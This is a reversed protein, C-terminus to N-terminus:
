AAVKHQKNREQLLRQVESFTILAVRNVHQAVHIRGTQTWRWVTSQDVGLLKAVQRINLYQPQEM